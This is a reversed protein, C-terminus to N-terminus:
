GTLAPAALDVVRVQPAVPECQGGLSLSCSVARQCCAAVNSSRAASESALSYRALPVPSCARATSPGTTPFNAFACSKGSIKSALAAM